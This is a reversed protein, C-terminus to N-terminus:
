QLKQRIFAMMQAMQKKMADLEAQMKMNQEQLTHVQAKLSQLDDGGVTTAPKSTIPLSHPSPTATKVQQAKAKAMAARVAAILAKQDFPKEIFEFHKSADSIKETVEEKRGSMVVLPITKLEPQTQLHQWVEWGNMRPMFFDLLILHPREQRILDLGEVGDKAELVEFSGQPLMERVQMRIAKGDDIIIVKQGAM